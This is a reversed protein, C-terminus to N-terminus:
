NRSCNCNLWPEDGQELRAHDNMEKYSVGVFSEYQDMSETKNLAAAQGVLSSAMLILALGLIKSKRGTNSRM